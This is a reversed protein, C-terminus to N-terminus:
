AVAVAEGKRVTAGSRVVHVPVPSRAIVARSVSGLVLMGATGLGRSGMVVLDHEGSTVRDLIAEAAPGSRVVTSVPVDDPVLDAAREVVRRAARELEAETQIPAIHPTAFVMRPPVAVSILTLRAGDDRALAIAEELAAAASQSGDIPVLISRYM